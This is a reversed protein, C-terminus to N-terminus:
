EKDWDDPTVTTYGKVINVDISGHHEVQDGFLKHYKGILEKAVHPDHFEVNTGWQTIKVKKILHAKGDAILRELDVTGNPMFYASYEARAQEAFRVLIEDAGMTREAIRLRIEEAISDNAILRAANARAVERSSKPYVRSYAETANWCCLYEEIFLRHKNSLAM